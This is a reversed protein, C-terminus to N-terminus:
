YLPDSFANLITGANYSIHLQLHEYCIGDLLKCLLGIVAAHCCRELPMFQTNCLQKTLHQMSDLNSPQTTSAGIMLQLQICFSEIALILNEM